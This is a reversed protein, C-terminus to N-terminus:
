EAAVLAIKSGQSNVALRSIDKIGQGELDTVLQWDADGQRWAYLKTGQAMFLTGDPSWVMDESGPRAMVMFVNAGTSPDYSMIKWPEQSKDLYSLLDSEPIKHLSRGINSAIVQNKGSKLDCLQLTAPDGLVFAAILHPTLWCHYGIKLDPVLVQPNSGDRQYQWLLQRGSKELIITSFHQGDPMPTPSYEGGDSTTLKITEASALHFQMVETQDGQQSVYFLSKGDELFHPQNDYGEHQSINQINEVSILPGLTLDAVYVETAPQAATSGFVVSVM